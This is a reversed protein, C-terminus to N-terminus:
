PDLFDFRIARRERRRPRPAYRFLQAPRGRGESRWEDLPSVLAALHLARRFSAKHLSRGLLIEYVRQLETLTFAPPLLRFAIPSQDVALRLAGLARDVILRHRPAILPLDNLPHWATEDVSPAASGAPMAALYALSLEADGPHRRADGISALPALYPPAIGLLTRAVRLAADDIAETQRPGDWPLSWRDRAKADGSRVLLVGLQADGPTVVVLDLAVTARRAMSKALISSRERM